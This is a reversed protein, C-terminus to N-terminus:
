RTNIISLAVSYTCETHEKSTSHVSITLQGQIAGVVTLSTNHANHLYRARNAIASELVAADNCCRVYKATLEVNCLTNGFVLTSVGVASHISCGLLSWPSSTHHPNTLLM